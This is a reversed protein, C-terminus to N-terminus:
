KDRSGSVFDSIWGAYKDFKLVRFLNCDVDFGFSNNITPKAKVCM